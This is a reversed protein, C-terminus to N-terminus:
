YNNLVVPFLKNKNANLLCKTIHVENMNKFSCLDFLDQLSSLHVPLTSKITKVFLYFLVVFHLAGTQILM